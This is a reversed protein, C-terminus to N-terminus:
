ATPQLRHDLDRAHNARVEFADEIRDHQAGRIGLGLRQVRLDLPDLALGASEAVAVAEPGRNVEVAAPQVKPRLYKNGVRFGSAGYFFAQEEGHVPIRLESAIIRQRSELYLILDMPTSLHRCLNAFDNLSMVQVPAALQFLKSDFEDPFYPPSEHNMLVLGYLNRVKQRSYPIQGRQRSELNNITGSLLGDFLVKLQTRAKRLHREIWRRQREVTETEGVDARSKVEIVLAVDEFLVLVDTAEKSDPKSPSQFVFVKSFAKEALRQAIAQSDLGKNRARPQM